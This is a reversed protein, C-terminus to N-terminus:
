CEVFVITTEETDLKLKNAEAADSLRTKIEEAMSDLVDDTGNLLDEKTYQAAVEKIDVAAEKELFERGYDKGFEVYIHPVWHVKPQLKTVLRAMVEEGDASVVRKVYRKKV